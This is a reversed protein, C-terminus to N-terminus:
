RAVLADLVEDQLAFMEQEEEKTLHDYGLLHLLGHCFLFCSERRITHGYEKAQEEIAQINIFIDGLEQAQEPVLFQDVGDQLAFSIVDTPRDIQRYERNIEHIKEPTVWIVSCICAEDRNTLDLARKMILLYDQEYGRDLSEEEDVLNTFVIEM